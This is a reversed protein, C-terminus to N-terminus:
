YYCSRRANDFRKLKVTHWKLDIKGTAKNRAVRLTWGLRHRLLAKQRPRKAVSPLESLDRYIPSM